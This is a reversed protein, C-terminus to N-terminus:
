LRYKRSYGRPTILYGGWIYTSSNGVIVTTRMDVVGVDLEGLTGVWRWEGPRYANKVVGVPASLGRYRAVVELAEKLLGLDIPNYFVLVFDGAAAAEVRKLITERPTLLDSLNVVAFDDGLPAGLRAAVALAATVGPVVAVDLELGRRSLIEFVLPAMGYVQADGGSVLAVTRGGLAEEVADLARKVEERMKYRRVEKGAALDEVLSVYTEYGIVLDSSAIAEVAEFTRQKAGGPGVGVVYLRGGM